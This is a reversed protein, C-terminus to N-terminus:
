NWWTYRPGEMAAGSVLIVRAASAVTVMMPDGPRLV